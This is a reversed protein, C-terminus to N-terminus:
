AFNTFYVKDHHMDIHAVEIYDDGQSVYIFVYNSSLIKFSSFIFPNSLVFNIAQDLDTFDFSKDINAVTNIFRYKKM